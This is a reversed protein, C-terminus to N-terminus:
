ISIILTKSPRRLLICDTPQTGNPSSKVFGDFVPRKKSAFLEQRQTRSAADVVVVVVESAEAAEAM